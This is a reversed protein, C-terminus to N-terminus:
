RPLVVIEASMSPRHVACELPLLTGAVAPRM